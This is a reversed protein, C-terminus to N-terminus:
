SFRRGSSRRLSDAEGPSVSPQSTQMQSGSRRACVVLKNGGLLSALLLAGRAAMRVWWRVRHVQRLKELILSPSSVARRKSVVQLGHAELLQRLASLTVYIRHEPYVFFQAADLRGHTLRAVALAWRRMPFSWLPTEVLLLGNRRLLSTARRLLRHPDEVHELVNLLAVADVTESTGRLRDDEAALVEVPRGRGQAYEVAEPSPDIGRAEWGHRLAYEVFQGMGCGYDVLSGARGLERELDGLHLKYRRHAEALVAPREYIEFNASIGHPSEWYGMREAVPESQAPFFAAGCDTCAFLTEGSPHRYVARSAAARCVPCTWSKARRAISTTEDSRM